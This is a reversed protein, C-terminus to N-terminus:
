TANTSMRSVRFAQRRGKARFDQLSCDAKGAQYRYVNTFGLSVLRAAARASM